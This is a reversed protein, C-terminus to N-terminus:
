PVEATQLCRWASGSRLAHCAVCRIGITTGGSDRRPPLFARKRGSARRRRDSARVHMGQLRGVSPARTARRPSGRDGRRVQASPALGAGAPGGAASPAEIFARRPREARSRSRSTRMVRLSPARRASRARRALSISVALLAEPRAGSWRRGVNGPRARTARKARLTSRSIRGSSREQACTSERSRSALFQRRLQEVPTVGTFIM